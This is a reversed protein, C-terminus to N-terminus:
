TSHYTTPFYSFRPPVKFLTCQIFLSFYINSTAPKIFCCSYSFPLSSEKRKYTCSIIFESVSEHQKEMSHKLTLINKQEYTVLNPFNSALRKRETKLVILKFLSRGSAHTRYFLRGKKYLTEITCHLNPIRRLRLQNNNFPTHIPSM